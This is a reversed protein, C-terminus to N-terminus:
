RGRRRWMNMSSVTKGSRRAEAVRKIEARHADPSQEEVVPQDDEVVPATETTLSEETTVVADKEKKDAKAKRPGKEKKVKEAAKKLKENPEPPNVLADALVKSDNESLKLTEVAVPAETTQITEEPKTNNSDTM